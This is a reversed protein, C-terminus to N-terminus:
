VFFHSMFTFDNLSERIRIKYISNSIHNSKKHSIYLTLKTLILKYYNLPLLNLSLFNSLSTLGTQEIKM